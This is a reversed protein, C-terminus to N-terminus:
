SVSGIGESSGGGTPYLDGAGDAVGDPQPADDGFCSIGNLRALDWLADCWPDPLCHFMHMTEVADPGYREALREEFVGWYCRFQQRETHTWDRLDKAEGRPPEYGDMLSLCDVGSLQLDAM